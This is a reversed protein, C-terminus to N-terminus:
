IGMIKVVQALFEARDGSNKKDYKAYSLRSRTALEYGRMLRRVVFPSM